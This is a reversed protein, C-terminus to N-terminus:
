TKMTVIAMIINRQKKESLAEILALKYSYVFSIPMSREIPKVFIRM